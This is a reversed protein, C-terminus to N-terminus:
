EQFEIKKRKFYFGKWYLLEGSSSLIKGDAKSEFDAIIDYHLAFRSLFELENFFWHPYSAKYITDPVRQVKLKTKGDTFATRDILINEFGFELFQEIWAYPNPLVQLVGSLLLCHIRHSELIDEIKYAFKLQKTEFSDIGVDVFHKQEVIFWQFSSLCSLFAKTQYFSSGLAGGFDIVSLHGNNSVAIKQLCALVPWAYQIKDFNVSDREYASEGNQVKEAAYKVKDLIANADYGSTQAAAQEWTDYEELWESQPGIKKSPRVIFNLFKFRILKKIYQKPSM